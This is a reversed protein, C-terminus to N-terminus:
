KYIVPKWLITGMKFNAECFYRLGCKESNVYLHTKLVYKNIM